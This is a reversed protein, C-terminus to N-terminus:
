MQSADVYLKREGLNPLGEQRLSKALFYSKMEIHRFQSLNATIPNNPDVTVIIQNVRNELAINVTHKILETMSESNRFAIATLNYNVFPEGIKPITPMKAFLGILKLFRTQMRLKWNMKEMIYKRVKTHDWHGLCAEISGSDEYVLIDHLDLYPMGRIYELFEGPQFPDFFDYDRYMENILSAVDDVDAENMSRIKAKETTRQKKYPLLTFIMCDKVRTFGMKSFLGLSPLNDEIIDLHLLKVDKEQVVQEIHKQLQEAIGKRRHLPDVIFGYEFATKVQKGGVYTDIIAYSASGVIGHNEVAVLVHWEKFPRSRAFYDPSSEIGIVMNTGMPCKKQLENLADNDSESAEKIQVM